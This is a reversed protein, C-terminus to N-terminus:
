VERRKGIKRLRDIQEHTVVGREGAGSPRKDDQWIMFGRILIYALLAVIILLVVMAAPWAFTDMFKQNVKEDINSTTNEAALRAKTEKALDGSLSSIQGNLSSISNQYQSSKLGYWGAGDNNLLLRAEEGSVSALPVNLCIRKTGNDEVGNDTCNNLHSSYVPCAPCSEGPPVACASAYQFPLCSVQAPCQQAVTQNVITPQCFISIGCKDSHYWSPGTMNQNVNENCYPNASKVTVHLGSVNELVQDSGTPTVTATFNCVSQNVYVTTNNAQSCSVTANNLTISAGPAITANTANCEQVTVNQVIVPSDGCYTSNSVNDTLCTGTVNFTDAFAMGAFLAIAFLISIKM